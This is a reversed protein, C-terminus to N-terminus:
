DKEHDQGEEIKKLYACVTSPAVKLEEAIKKQSWGAKYLALLKGTDVRKARKTGNEAERKDEQSGDRTQAGPADSDPPAAQAIEDRFFLCGDLLNQLTDPAYDTWSTPESIAPVLVKIEMGKAALGLAENRDIQRVLM